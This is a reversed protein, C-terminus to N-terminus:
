SCRANPIPLIVTWQEFHQTLDPVADFELRLEAEPEDGTHCDACYMRLFPKVESEFQKARLEASAAATPEAAEVASCALLTVLLMTARM